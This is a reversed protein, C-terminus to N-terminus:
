LELQKVDFINELDIIKQLVEKPALSDINIVMLSRDKLGTRGVSMDAININNEGLITGVSGIMGPQDKNYLLIVHGLPVANIHYDDVLVIRPDNKGFVTGAITCEREDTKVTVSILNTFDSLVSEKTEIVKIGREKVLIPANVYNVSDKLGPTLLGKQLAVTIPAISEDDYIEGPGYKIHVESIPRDVIQAQFSGIKEVLVLFPSLIEIKDPDIYIQNIAGTVPKGRLANVVQRAIDIAVHAQAEKTAAGLHPVVVINDLEFLPSQTTPEEEFVDLAAGALNKSKLAEYLATEDVVGGRSCNIFRATTKMLQFEEKGILHHTKPTYPIHLSIYDSQSLVEEFSVIKVGIKEAGERSIYPDYAIVEMGFAKARKVVESGIRGLGIIGLKKKYLEVGIFKTRDWVGNKLLADAQPINRSIALMLTMTHEAASITNSTPTNVVLIGLRTATDVDVNDVGVGARGIVKLKSAAELIEATVTTTSRIIMADYDKICEVVQEHALKSEQVIEIDDEKSLIDIGQQALRGIVLVKM